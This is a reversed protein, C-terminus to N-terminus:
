SSLQGTCDIGGGDRSVYNDAIECDRMILRSGHACIAGGDQKEATVNANYVGIHRMEVDTEKKLMFGRINGTAKVCSLGTVTEFAEDYGGFIHVSRSIEIQESIEYDGAAVYISTALAPRVSPRRFQASRLRWPAMVMAERGSMATVTTSNRTWM